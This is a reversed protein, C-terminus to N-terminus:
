QFRAHSRLLELALSQQKFTKLMRRWRMMYYVENNGHFFFSFSRFSLFYIVIFFNISDFFVSIGDTDIFETVVYM